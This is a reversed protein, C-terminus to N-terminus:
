QMASQLEENVEVSWMLPMTAPREASDAGLFGFNLSKAHPVRQRPFTLPRFPFWQQIHNGFHFGHGRENTDWWRKGRKRTTSDALWDIERHRQRRLGKSGGFPWAFRPAHEGWVRLPKLLARLM